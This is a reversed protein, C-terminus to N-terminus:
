KTKNKDEYKIEISEACRSDRPLQYDCYRTYSCIFGITAMGRYSCQNSASCTKTLTDSM